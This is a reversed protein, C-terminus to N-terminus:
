MSVNQFIRYLIIQIKQDYNENLGDINWPKSWTDPKWNKLLIKLRVALGQRVFAGADDSPYCEWRKSPTM